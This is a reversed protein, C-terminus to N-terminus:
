CVQTWQDRFFNFAIITYMYIMIVMMVFTMVLQRGNYTVSQLVAQLQLLVFVVRLATLRYLVSGPFDTWFALGNLLQM